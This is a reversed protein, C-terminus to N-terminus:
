AAVRCYYWVTEARRLRMRKERRENIAERGEAGALGAGAKEVGFMAM